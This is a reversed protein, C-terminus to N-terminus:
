KVHIGSHCNCKYLQFKLVDNKVYITLSRHRLKEVYTRTKIKHFTFFKDKFFILFNGMKKYLYLSPGINFHQSM